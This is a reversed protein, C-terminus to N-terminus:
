GTVHAAEDAPLAVRPRDLDVTEGTAAARYIAQVFELSALAADVTVLPDRGQTVAAHFDDYQRHHGAAFADPLRPGRTTQSEEVESSAQNGAPGDAAHFWELRDDDLVASGQTGHVALRASLGPYAATTATLTAIAGSAFTVVAGLTDEVEIGTHALLGSQAQVRVPAGLYWRLLDLTHVGQNMLAGGGDLALTGRWDGSDYYEQTRWWSVSAVASTLRGFRGGTVARHVAQSAPDFRHQSVVASRVGDAAARRATAAFGAARDLDVDLPKEVLTHLGSEVAETAVAVHLGSPTCVAVADLEDRVEDLRNAARAGPHEAALAEARATDFDVAATFAFGPHDALVRAHHVGIVGCGVVGTRLVRM